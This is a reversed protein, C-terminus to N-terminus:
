ITRLELVLLMTLGFQDEQVMVLTPRLQHALVQLLFPILLEQIFYVSHVDQIEQGHLGAYGLGLQRCVVASSPRAFFDQCVTGWINNHCIEVRGEYRNSGDVLRM